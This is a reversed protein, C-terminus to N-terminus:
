IPSSRIDRLGTDHTRPENSAPPAQLWSRSSPNFPGTGTIKPALWAPEDPDPPLAGPEAPFGPEPPRLALPPEDPLPLPPAARAVPPRSLEAEEPEPEALGPLQWGPVERQSATSGTSRVQSSEPLQRTSVQGNTHRAPAQAPSQWGPSRRHSPMCGIRQLSRPAHIVSPCAHLTMHWRPAQVPVQASPSLCHADELVSCLQVSLRQPVGEGQANVQM